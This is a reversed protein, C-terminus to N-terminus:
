VALPLVPPRGQQREPPPPPTVSSPTAPSFCISPWASCSCSSLAAGAPLSPRWVPRPPSHYALAIEIAIHYAQNKEQKIEGEPKSNIRNVQLAM